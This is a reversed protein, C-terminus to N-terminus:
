FNVGVEICWKRQINLDLPSALKSLANSRLGQSTPTGSLNPQSAKLMYGAGITFNRLRIQYGTTLMPGQNITQNQYGVNFTLARKDDDKPVFVEDKRYFSYGPAIFLGALIKKVGEQPMEGLCMRGSCGIKPKKWYAPRTDKKFFRQPPGFPFLRAEGQIEFSESSTLFNANQGHQPSYAVGARLGMWRFTSVQASISGAQETWRMVDTTVDVVPFKRKYQARLFSPLLFLLFCVWCFKFTPSLPFSSQNM